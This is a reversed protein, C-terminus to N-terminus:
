CPHPREARNPGPDMSPEQVVDAGCASSFLDDLKDAASRDVSAPLSGYIDATTRISSHGLRHQIVELPVGAERMVHGASHRLRHFTVGHM